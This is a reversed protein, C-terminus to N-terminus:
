KHLNMTKEYDVVDITTATGYDVTKSEYIEFGNKEYMKRALGMVDIGQSHNSLTVLRVFETEVAGLAEALLRSGIKKGRKDKAVSFTNLWTIENPKNEDPLLGICGVINDASDIALWFKGRHFSEASHLQPFDELSDCIQHEQEGPCHCTEELHNAIHFEKMSAALDDELARRITGIPYNVPVMKFQHTTSLQPFPSNLATSHCRQKRWKSFCM